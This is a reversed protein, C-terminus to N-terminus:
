PLCRSTFDSLMNFSARSKVGICQEGIFTQCAVVCMLDNVMGNLVHISAYVCVAKLIEPRQQFAADRSGVHAYFRKM